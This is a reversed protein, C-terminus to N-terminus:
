RFNKILERWNNKMECVKNDSQYCIIYERLKGSMSVWSMSKGYKKLNDREQKRLARDILENRVFKMFVVRGKINLIVIADFLFMGRIAAYCYLLMCGLYNASYRTQGYYGKM